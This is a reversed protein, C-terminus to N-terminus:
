VIGDHFLKLILDGDDGARAPANAAGDCQFQGDV